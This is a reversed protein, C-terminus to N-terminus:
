EGRLYNVIAESMKYEDAPYCECNDALVTRIKEADIRKLTEIASGLAQKTMPSLNIDSSLINEIAEIQQNKDM